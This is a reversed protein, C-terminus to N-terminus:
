DHKDTEKKEACENCHLLGEAQVGDFFGDECYVNKGCSQCDGILERM